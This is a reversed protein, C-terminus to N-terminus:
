IEFPYLLQIPRRLVTGSSTHVACLRVLGDRRLFLEQIRGLKWSQRPTNDEGILAVDGVKLLSPGIELGASIREVMQELLQDYTETQLAM